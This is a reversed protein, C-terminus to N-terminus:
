GSATWLVDSDWHLGESETAMHFTAPISMVRSIVVGTSQCLGLWGYRFIISFAKVFEFVQFEYTVRGHNTQITNFNEDVMSTAKVIYGHRNLAHAVLLRIKYHFFEQFFSM